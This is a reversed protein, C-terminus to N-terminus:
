CTKCTKMLLLLVDCCYVRNLKSSQLQYMRYLKGGSPQQSINIVGLSDRYVTNLILFIAYM